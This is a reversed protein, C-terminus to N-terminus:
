QLSKLIKRVEAEIPSLVKESLRKQKQEDTEINVVRVSEVDPTLFNRKDIVGDFEVIKDKDEKTIFKRLSVSDVTIGSVSLDDNLVKVVAFNERITIIEGKWAVRKGFCEVAYYELTGRLCIDNFFKPSLEKVLRYDAISKYGRANYSKIEEVSSFGLKKADEIDPACGSM